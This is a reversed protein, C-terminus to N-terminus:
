KEEKTEKKPEDPHRPLPFWYDIEFIEQGEHWDNFMCLTGDMDLYGVDVFYETESESQYAYRQHGCFIFDDKGNAKPPDNKYSRWTANEKLRKNEDMLNEYEELPITCYYPEAHTQGPHLPYHKSM